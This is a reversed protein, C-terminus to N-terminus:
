GRSVLGWAIRAAVLLVLIATGQRVRRASLVTIGLRNGLWGGLMVAPLLLWYGWLEQGIGDLGSKTFQGILGAGSNLLIFLSSAAAIRKEEGWRLMYLLPALFIGGGIGVLGALLGTVGGSLALLGTRVPDTATEALQPPRVLLVLGSALLAAALVGLFAQESIAIQGGLWAMPMSVALAPALTRLSVLGARAYRITSGAVVAINCVLSIIPILAYDVGTVALLATYTSGGGFGVSAYLIATIAFLLPLLLSM